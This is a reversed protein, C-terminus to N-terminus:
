PELYNGWGSFTEGKAVVVVTFRWDLPYWEEPIEGNWNWDQKGSVPKGNKNRIVAGHKKRELSYDIPVDKKWMDEIAESGTAKAGPNGTLYLRDACSERLEEEGPNSPKQWVCYQVQMEKPVPMEYIEVRFHYTGQAYNPPLTWNGDAEGAPEEGPFGSDSKVVPENMDFVLLETEPSVRVVTQAVDSGSGNQATLTYTTTETLSVSVQSQGTVDGIGPLLVLSQPTGSITWRLVTDDGENIAEPDAEFSTIEPPPAITVEVQATASGAPNFATLTYVTDQSPSVLIKTKGTVDGIGPELTLSDVRGLISWSLTSQGNQYIKPPSASFSNIVPEGATVIAQATTAGAQNRATLRYITTENLTVVIRERGTVDGIGPELTLSDVPNRINWSLTTSGGNIVHSPDAGFYVVIPRPSKLASQMAPLFASYAATDEDKSQRGLEPASRIADGSGSSQGSPDALVVLSGALLVILAMGIFTAARGGSKAITQRNHSRDM